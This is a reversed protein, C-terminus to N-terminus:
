ASMSRERSIVGLFRKVAAPYINESPLRRSASESLSISIMTEPLCPISRRRKSAGYKIRSTAATVTGLRALSPMVSSMRQSGPSTQISGSKNLVRIIFMMSM